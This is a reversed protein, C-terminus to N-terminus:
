KEKSKRAREVALVVGLVIALFFTTQWNFAGEGHRILNWVYIVIPNIVFVLAFFIVFHILFRKIKM